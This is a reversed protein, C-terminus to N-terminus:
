SESAFLSIIYNMDPNKLSLTLDILDAEIFNPGLCKSPLISSEGALALSIDERGMVEVFVERTRPSSSVSVM